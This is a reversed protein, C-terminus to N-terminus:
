AVVGSESNLPIIASPNWVLKHSLEFYYRTRNHQCGDSKRKSYLFYGSQVFTEAVYETSLSPYLSGSVVIMKVPANLPIVKNIGQELEGIEVTTVQLATGELMEKMVKADM